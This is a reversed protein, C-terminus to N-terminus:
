SLNGSSPQVQFLDLPINGTDLLGHLGEGTAPRSRRLLLLPLAGWGVV